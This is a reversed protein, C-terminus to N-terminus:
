RNILRAYFVSLEKLVKNFDRVEVGFDFYNPEIFLKSSAPDVHHSELTINFGVQLVRDTFYYPNIM